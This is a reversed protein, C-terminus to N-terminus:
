DNDASAVTKKGGFEYRLGIFASRPAGPAFFMEKRSNADTAFAGNDTFANEGLLGSTAYRKDFVNNVKAFLQWGSSGFKYRTDM